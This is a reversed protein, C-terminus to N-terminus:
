LHGSRYISSFRNTDMQLSSSQICAGNDKGIITGYPRNELGQKREEKVVGRQTEVGISDVKLQLMRESEMWMALELQNSPVTIYYVTQDFTTFANLSGGANQVMKFFEGRPINPSGEFM